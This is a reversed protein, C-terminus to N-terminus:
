QEVLLIDWDLPIPLQRAAVHRLLTTKGALQPGAAALISTKNEIFLWLLAALEASLTNNSVLELMTLRNHGRGDGGWWNSANDLNTM